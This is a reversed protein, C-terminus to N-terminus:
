CCHWYPEKELDPKLLESAIHIYCVSPCIKCKRYLNKKIKGDNGIIEKTFVPHFFQKVDRTKDANVPDDDENISQVNIDVLFEEADM